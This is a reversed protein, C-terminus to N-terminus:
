VDLDMFNAGFRETESSVAIGASDGAAPEIGPLGLSEPTLKELSRMVAKYMEQVDEELGRRAYLWYKTLPLILAKVSATAALPLAYHRAAYREVDAIAQAEAKVVVDLVVEGTRYDDTLEVLSQESMMVLLDDITIYQLDAM